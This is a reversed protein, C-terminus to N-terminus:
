GIILRRDRSPGSSNVAARPTASPCAEGALSFVDGMAALLAADTPNARMQLISQDLTFGRGELQDIRANFAMRRENTAVKMAAAVEPSPTKARANEDALRTLDSSHKASRLKETRVKSPADGMAALLEVDKADESTRLEFIAQDMTLSPGGGTKPKTLDEIRKKFLNARGEPTTIDLTPGNAPDFSANMFFAEFKL